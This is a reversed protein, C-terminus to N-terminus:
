TSHMISSRVTSKVSNQRRTNWIVIQKKRSKHIRKNITNAVFLYFITTKFNEELEIFCVTLIKYNKERRQTKTSSREREFM